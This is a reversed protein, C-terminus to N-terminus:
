SLDLDVLATWDNRGGESVFPLRLRDRGRATVVAVVAGILEDDRCRDRLDVGDRLVHVRRVGGEVVAGIPTPDVSEESWVSLARGDGLAAYADAVDRGGDEELAIAALVVRLVGQGAPPCRLEGELRAPAIPAATLPYAGRPAFRAITRAIAYPGGDPGEPAPSGRFAALLVVPEPSGRLLGDHGRAMELAEIQARLRLRLGSTAQRKERRKIRKAM